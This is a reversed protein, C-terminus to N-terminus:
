VESARWSKPDFYPNKYILILLLIKKKSLTKEFMMLVRTIKRVKRRLLYDPNCKDGVDKGNMSDELNEGEDGDLTNSEM